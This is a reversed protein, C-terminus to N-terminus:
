RAVMVIIVAGIVAVADEILAAPRDQGFKEALGARALRGGLTGIVAGIVSAVAGISLSGGAVGLCAGCLAGSILRAAFQPPVTRSPTTPLQDTVFEVLALATFIWPTWAYGMFALPSASLDIWGLHAAWAVAAPATMARLGAVVGILLALLYFM